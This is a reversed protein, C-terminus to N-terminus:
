VKFGFSMRQRVPRFRPQPLNTISQPPHGNFVGERKLDALKISPELHGILLFDIVKVPRINSAKFGALQDDSYVSRKATLRVLDDLSTVNAVAEVVGVSTLSQSALYGPSQSRYFLLVSGPKLRTTPARCLYVKRITNGPARRERTSSHLGFLDEQIQQALELFLVNHYEGRIPVCFAEAPTRGVFRPYNVRALDFLDEEDCPILRDRYLSKEYIEEGRANTGTKEFGFYLLVAILAQQDKFTTLYVLDFVNRQAFWLVQKLLLEGLKEGRYKPKVKFTCVKLIKPGLHRTKAEDHTEEKRVVLGALENDITVV